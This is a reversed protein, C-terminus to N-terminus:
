CDYLDEIKSLVNDEEGHSDEDIYEESMDEILKDNVDDENCSIEDELMFNERKNLM